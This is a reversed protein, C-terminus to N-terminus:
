YILEGLGQRIIEIEDGSCDVITSPENGGYGGDIVCDVVSNFREHILEPDTTYELVEDLDKISTNVLPFGLARTIEVPIANNPIRLGITKRKGSYSDPVKGSAPLIFTFPGPLNKKLLKFTANNVRAYDALNSLDPCIISFRVDKIKSGKIRLIRDLAKKSRISCGLGYVSDTPYIIVGDNQLIKVVAAIERENPNEPYIKILMPHLYVLPLAM